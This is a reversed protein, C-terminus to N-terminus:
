PKYYDGAAGHQQPPGNGYPTQQPYNTQQQYEQPPRVAEYKGLPPANSAMPYEGGVNGGALKAKKAKNRKLLFLVLCVVIIIIIVAIIIGIIAGIPFKKKKKYTKSKAFAEGVAMAM